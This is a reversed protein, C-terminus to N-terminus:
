RVAKRLAKLMDQVLNYGIPDHNKLLKPYYCYATLTEAWYEEEETRAWQSIANGRQFASLVVSAVVVNFEAYLHHALEHVFISQAFGVASSVVAVGPSEGPRLTENGLPLQDIRDPCHVLIRPCDDSPKHAPQRPAYEGCGVEKLEKFSNHDDLIGTSQLPVQQVVAELRLKAIPAHIIQEAQARPVWSEVTISFPSRFITTAPM